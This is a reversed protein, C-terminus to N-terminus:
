ADKKVRGALVATVIFGILSLWIGAGLYETIESAGEAMNGILALVGLAGAIGGGLVMGKKSMLSGAIALAGGIIPILVYLASDSELLGEGILDMVSVSVGFITLIPLFLFCILAAASAILAPMYKNNM